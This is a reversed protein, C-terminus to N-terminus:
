GDQFPWGDVMRSPQGEGRFYESGMWVEFAEPPVSLMWQIDSQSGHAALAARKRDLVSRVDVRWGLDSEPMGLPRGDDGLMEEAGLDIGLAAARAAMRGLDDRNMTQELVRPRRRALDAARYAVQHAKIHDPHGYNGHWDYTVLVDADEADLLDALRRGASDLDAQVFSLPDDNQQWGTMGSDHYGLWAVKAVGLVRAAARAEARRRRAVTEGPALDDPVTGHEGGTAFAVVVRHGREAALMMTGATQSAEDDPHAHLFVITSM